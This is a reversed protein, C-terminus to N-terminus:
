KYLALVEALAEDVAKSNMGSVPKRAPGVPYGMLNVARKVVSNPNGMAMVDRFPRLKFQAAKAEEIRGERWLEYISVVLAPFVNSTGAVAGCGGAQLTWLILSDSGALM